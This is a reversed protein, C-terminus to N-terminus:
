GRYPANWPKRVRGLNAPELLPQTVYQWTDLFYRRTRQDDYLGSDRFSLDEILELLTVETFPAVLPTWSANLQANKNRIFEDRRAPDKAIAELREKEALPQDSSSPENTALWRFEDEIARVLSTVLFSEDMGIEDVLLRLRDKMQPITQITNPDDGTYQATLRVVENLEYSRTKETWHQTAVCFQDILSEM